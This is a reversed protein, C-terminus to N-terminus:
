VLLYGVVNLLYGIIIIGATVIGIFTFLLKPKVVRKLMIMSPLSLATVGMM